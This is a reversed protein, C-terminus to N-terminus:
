FKMKAQIKIKKCTNPVRKQITIRVSAEITLFVAHVRAIFILASSM